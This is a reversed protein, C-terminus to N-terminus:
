NDGTDKTDSPKSVSQDAPHKYKTHTGHSTSKSPQVLFDDDDDNMLQDIFFRSPRVRAIRKWDNLKHSKAM